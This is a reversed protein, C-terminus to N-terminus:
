WYQQDPRPMFMGGTGGEWCWWTGVARFSPLAIVTDAAPFLTACCMPMCSSDRWIPYTGQYLM